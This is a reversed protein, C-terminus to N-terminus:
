SLGCVLRSYLLLLSFAIACEALVFACLACVYVCMCLCVCVYVFMCSYVCVYWMGCVVYWMGCVVCVQSPVTVDLIIPMISPNIKNLMEADSEKRVGAYVLYGLDALHLAVDKGIGSSAGTVLVAATAKEPIPYIPTLLFYLLALIVPIAFLLQM